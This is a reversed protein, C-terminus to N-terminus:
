GFIFHGGHQYTNAGIVAMAFLFALLKLHWSELCVIAAFHASFLSMLDSINLM